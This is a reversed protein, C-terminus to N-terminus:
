CYSSLAGSGRGSSSALNPPDGEVLASSVFLLFIIEFRFKGQQSEVDVLWTSVVELLWISLEDCQEAGVGYMYQMQKIIQTM